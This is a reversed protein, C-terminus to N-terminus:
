VRILGCLSFSMLLLPHHEIDNDIVTREILARNASCTVTALYPLIEEAKYIDAQTDLTTYLSIHTHIPVIDLRARQSRVSKWKVTRLGRTGILEM